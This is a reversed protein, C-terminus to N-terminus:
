VPRWQRHSVNLITEIEAQRPHSQWEIWLFVDFSLILVSCVDNKMKFPINFLCLLNMCTLKCATAM